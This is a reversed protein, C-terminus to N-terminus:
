NTYFRASSVFDVVVGAPSTAGTSDLVALLKMGPSLTGHYEAVFKNSDGLAIATIERITSQISGGSNEIAIRIDAIQAGGVNPNNFEFSFDVECFTSAPATLLIQSLNAAHLEFTGGNESHSSFQETNQLTVFTSM